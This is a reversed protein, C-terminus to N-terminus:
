FEERKFKKFIRSDGQFMEPTGRFGDRFDTHFRRCKDPVVRVGEQFGKFCRKMCRSFRQLKQFRQYQRLGGLTSFSSVKQAEQFVGSNM